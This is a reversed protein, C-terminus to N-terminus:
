RARDGLAKIVADLEPNGLACIVGIDSRFNANDSSTILSLGSLSRLHEVGRATLSWRLPPGKEAVSVYAKYARLRAHLSAPVKKVGLHLKLVESVDKAAVPNVHAECAFLAALIVYQDTQEKPKVASLLTSIDIM